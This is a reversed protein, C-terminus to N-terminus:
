LVIWINITIVLSLNTFTSIIDPISWLLSGANMYLFHLLSVMCKFCIIATSKAGNESIFFLRPKLRDVCWERQLTGSIKQVIQTIIVFNLIFIIDSLTVKIGYECNLLTLSATQHVESNLESGYTNFIPNLFTTCLYM